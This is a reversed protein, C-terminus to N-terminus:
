KKLFYKGKYLNKNKIYNRVTWDSCGLAEATKRISSYIITENTEINFVEVKSGLVESMKKKTNESHLKGSFPSLKGKRLESLTKKTKESFKKGLRSKSMKEKTLISLPKGKLSESIKFKTEEKHIKGFSSGAIKLINYEPKLSDIYYQERKILDNSECYELIEITFKSYSYKQIASFIYSQSRKLIKEIMLQSYYTSFRKSLNVASGVYSERTEKNIWRYIGSKGKNDQMIQKKQMFADEYKVIPIIPNIGTHLNKKIPWFIKPFISFGRSIIILNLFNQKNM